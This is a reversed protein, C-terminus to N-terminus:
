MCLECFMLTVQPQPVSAHVPFTQSYKGPVIYGFNPIRVSLLVEAIAELTDVVTQSEIFDFDFTENNGAHM